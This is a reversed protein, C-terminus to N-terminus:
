HLEHKTTLWPTTYFCFFLIYYQVTIKSFKRQLKMLVKTKTWQNVPHESHKPMVSNPDQITAQWSPTCRTIINFRTSWTISNKFGTSCALCYLFYILSLCHTQSSGMKKKEHDIKGKSPTASPMKIKYTLTNSRAHVNKTKWTPGIVNSVLNWGCRTQFRSCTPQM